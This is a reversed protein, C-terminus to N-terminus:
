RPVTLEIMISDTDDMHVSGGARRRTSEPLVAILLERIRTAEIDVRRIVRGSTLFREDRKSAV